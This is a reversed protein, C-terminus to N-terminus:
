ARRASVAARPAAAAGSDPRGALRPLEHGVVGARVQLTSNMYCTNGLNQLGAPLVIGAKAVDKASLDEVFKVQTAPGTPVGTSTGILNILAGDALPMSAFSMSQKLVGKWAGKAM